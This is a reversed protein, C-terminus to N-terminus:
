FQGGIGIGGQVGLAGFNGPQGSGARETLHSYVVSGSVIVQFWAVNLNIQGGASPQVLFGMKVRHEGTKPDDFYNTGLGAAIQTFVNAQLNAWSGAVDFEHGLNWVQQLQASAVANQFVDLTKSDFNLLSVNGTFQLEAGSEGAAHLRRNLGGGLQFGQQAGPRFGPQTSALNYQPTYLLQVVWSWNKKEAELLKEQYYQWVQMWVDGRHIVPEKINRSTVTGHAETQQELVHWTDDTVQDLTKPQGNYFVRRAGTKIAADDAVIPLDLSELDLWARVRTRLDADWPAPEIAAPKEGADAQKAPVTKTDSPGNQPPSPVPPADAKQQRHIVGPPSTVYGTRPRVGTQTAAQREAPSDAPAVARPEQDHSPRQAVHTLEHALLARCRVDGPRYRDRGFVVQSGLAYADAGLLDASAAAREDAHIRVRAFDHGLQAEMTDREARPLPSGPRKLVDIVERPVAAERKRLQSRNDSPTKAAFTYM